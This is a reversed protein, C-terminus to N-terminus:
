DTCGHLLVTIQSLRWCCRRRRGSVPSLQQYKVAQNMCGSCCLHRGPALIGPAAADEWVSLSGAAEPLDLDSSDSTNPDSASVSVDDELNKELEVDPGLVLFCTHTNSRSASPLARLRLKVISFPSLFRLSSCEFRQLLLLLFSPASNFLRTFLHHLESTLSGTQDM